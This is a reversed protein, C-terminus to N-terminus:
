RDHCSRYVQQCSFHIIQIESSLFFVDSFFKFQMLLHITNEEESLMRNSEAFRM